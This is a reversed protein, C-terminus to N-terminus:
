FSLFSNIIVEEKCPNTKSKPKREKTKQKTKKKRGRKADKLGRKEDFSETKVFALVLLEDKTEIKIKVNICEKKEAKNAINTAKGIAKKQAFRENKPFCKRKDRELMGSVTGAIIIARDYIIKKPLLPNNVIDSLLISLSLIFLKKYEM